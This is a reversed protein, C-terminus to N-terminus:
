LPHKSRHDLGHDPGAIQLSTVLARRLGDHLCKRRLDLLRQLVGHVEFRRQLLQQRLAAPRGDVLSCVRPARRVLAGELHCGLHFAHRQAAAAPAALLVGLLLGRALGDLPQPLDSIRRFASVNFPKLDKGSRVRRSKPGPTLTTTPGLPEPLDLTVSATSHAIPSCDGSATRPCDICSTIKPPPRPTCARLAASTSITSSLESPVTSRGSLSIEIM